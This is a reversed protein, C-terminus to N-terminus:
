ASTVLSHQADAFSNETAVNPRVSSLSHTYPHLVERAIFAVQRETLRFQDYIEVIELLSGGGCYEM